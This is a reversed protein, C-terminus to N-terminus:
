RKSEQDATIEAMMQLQEVRDMSCVQYLTWKGIALKKSKQWTQIEALRVDGADLMLNMIARISGIERELLERNIRGGYPSASEWGFRLVKGITRALEGCEEALFALREVESPTLKPVDGCMAQRIRAIEAELKRIRAGDRFSDRLLLDNVARLAATVKQEEELHGLAERRRRPLEVRGRVWTRLQNWRARIM